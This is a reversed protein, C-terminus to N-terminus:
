CASWRSLAIICGNSVKPGDRDSDGGLLCCNSSRQPDWMPLVKCVHVFWGPLQKSHGNSHDFGLCVCGAAGSWGVWSTLRLASCVQCDYILETQKWGCPSRLLDDATFLCCHWTIFWCSVGSHCWDSELSKETVLGNIQHRYGYVPFQINFGDSKSENKM